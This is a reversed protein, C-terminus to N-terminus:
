NLHVKHRFGSLQNCVKDVNISKEENKGANLTKSFNKKQLKEKNNNNRQELKTATFIQSILCIKFDIIILVFFILLKQSRM